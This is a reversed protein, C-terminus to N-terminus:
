SLRTRMRTSQRRAANTRVWLCGAVAQKANEADVDGQYGVELTYDEGVFLNREMQLAISEQNSRANPPQRVMMEQVVKKSQKHLVRFAFEEPLPLPEAWHKSGARRTKLLATAPGVARQVPLTVTSRGDVVTFHVLISM